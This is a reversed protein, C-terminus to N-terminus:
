HAVREYKDRFFRQWGTSLLEATTAESLGESAQRIQETTRLNEPLAVFEALRGPEFHTEILKAKAKKIGKANDIAAARVLKCLVGFRIKQMAVDLHMEQGAQYPDSIWPSLDKAYVTYVDRRIPQRMLDYQVPGDPEGPRVAWLAQGRPSLVFDVFRQALEPHPPNKLIGIPDPNFATQGAPSVYVLDDPYRAVRMAGYFDICTAVPAEAIVADAASSAGDYFQKGNSLISLLKAWGSPWDDASQVIMEYAM